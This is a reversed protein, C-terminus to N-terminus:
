HCFGWLKKRFRGDDLLDIDKRCLKRLLYLGLWAICGRISEPSIKNENSSFRLAANRFEHNSHGLRLITTRRRWAM